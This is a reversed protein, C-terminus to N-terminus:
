DPAAAATDRNSLKIIEPQAGVYELFAELVKWGGISDLEWSHGWFHVISSSTRMRARDVCDILRPLLEHSRMLTPLLAARRRWDGQSVFNRVYVWRKHPYVQLTTPMAFRDFFMDTHCSTISRAYIFGAKRVMSVHNRTFKGGPYSFGGVPQGLLDELAVRGQLIESEAQKSSVTNLYCHSYTHSGIEHLAALHRLSVPSMVPLGERNRIPVYFTGRIGHRAMMEGVRVDAPHGDDWSMTLVVKAGVGEM